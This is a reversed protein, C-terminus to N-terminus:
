SCCPQVSGLSESITNSQVPRCLTCHQICQATRFVPANIQLSHLWTNRGAISASRLVAHGEVDWHSVSMYDVGGAETTMGVNM